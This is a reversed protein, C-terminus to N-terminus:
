MSSLYLLVAIIDIFGIIIGLIALAKLKRNKNISIVGCVVAVSGCIIGAVLLGLIALLFSIVSLGGGGDQAKPKQEDDPSSPSSIGTKKTYKEKFTDAQEKKLSKYGQTFTSIDSSEQYLNSIRASLTMGSIEPLGKTTVPEMCAYDVPQSEKINGAAAIEELQASINANDQNVHRKTKRLRAQTSFDREAPKSIVRKSYFTSSTQKDVSCATMLIGLAIFAILLSSCRGSSFRLKKM